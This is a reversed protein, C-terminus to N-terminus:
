GRKGRWGSGFYPGSLGAAGGAEAAAGGGRAGEDATAKDAQGGAPMNGASWVGCGAKLRAAV